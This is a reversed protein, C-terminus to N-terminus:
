RCAGSAHGTGGDTDAEQECWTDASRVVDTGVELQGRLGVEQAPQLPEASLGGGTWAPGTRWVRRRMRRGMGTRKRM